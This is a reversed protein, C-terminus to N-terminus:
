VTNVGFVNGLVDQVSVAPDVGGVGDGACEPLPNTNVHSVRTNVLCDVRLLSSVDSIVLPDAEAEEELYRLPQLNWESDSIQLYSFTKRYRLKSVNFHSCLILKCFQLFFFFILELHWRSLSSPPFTILKRSSQKTPSHFIFANSPSAFPFIEILFKFFDMWHIPPRPWGKLDNETWPKNM